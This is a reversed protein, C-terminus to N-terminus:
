LNSHQPNPPLFMTDCKPVAAKGSSIRRSQWELAGDHPGRMMSLSLFDRLDSEDASELIYSPCLEVEDGYKLWSTRVLHNSVTSIIVGDEPRVCLVQCWFREKPLGVKVWTGRKVHFHAGDSREEFQPEFRRM